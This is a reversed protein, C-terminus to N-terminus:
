RQANHGHSRRLAQYLGFDDAWRSALWGCGAAVVRLRWVFLFGACGPEPDLNLSPWPVIVVEVRRAEVDSGDGTTQAPKHLVLSADPVGAGLLADRVALARQQALEANMTPDDTADHFGFIVRQKGRPPASPTKCRARGSALDFKVVGADVAVSAVPALVTTCAMTAVPAATAAVPAQLPSLPQALSRVQPHRGVSSQDSLRLGHGGLLTHGFDVAVVTSQVHDALDVSAVGHPGALHGRDHVLATTGVQRMKWVYVAFMFM